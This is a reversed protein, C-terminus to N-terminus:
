GDKFIRQFGEEAGFAFHIEGSHEKSQIPKKGLARAVNSLDTTYTAVQEEGSRVAPEKLTPAAETDM